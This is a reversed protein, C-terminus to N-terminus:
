YQQDAMASSRKITETSQIRTDDTIDRTKKDLARQFLSVIAKHGKIFDDIIKM